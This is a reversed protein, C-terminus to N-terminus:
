VRGGHLGDGHALVGVGVLDVVVALLVDLLRPKAVSRRSRKKSGHARCAAAAAAVVRAPEDDLAEREGEVAVGVLVAGDGVDLTARGGGDDLDLMVTREM